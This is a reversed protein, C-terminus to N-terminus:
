LRRHDDLGSPQLDPKIEGRQCPVNKGSRRVLFDLRQIAARIIERRHHGIGLGGPFGVGDAV